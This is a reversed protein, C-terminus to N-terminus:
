EYDVVFCLLVVVVTNFKNKHTLVFLINTSRKQAYIKVECLSTGSFVWLGYGELPLDDSIGVPHTIEFAWFYWIGEM